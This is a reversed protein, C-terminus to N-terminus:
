ACLNINLPGQPRSFSADLHGFGFDQSFELHGYGMWKVELGFFLPINNEEIKFTPSLLTDKKLNLTM